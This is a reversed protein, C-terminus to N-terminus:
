LALGKTKGGQRQYDVQEIDGYYYLPPDGQVFAVPFM